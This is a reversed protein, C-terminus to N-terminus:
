SDDGADGDLEADAEENGSDAEPEDTMDTTDAAM